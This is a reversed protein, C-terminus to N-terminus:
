GFFESPNRSSIDLLVTEGSQGVLRFQVIAVAGETKVLNVVGPGGASKPALGSTLNVRTPSSWSGPGSGSCTYRRVSTPGSGDSEARYTAVYTRDLQVWTLEVLTTLHDGDPANCTNVAPSLNFGGRGSQPPEFPPTSAVDHSLWTALGRTSRADDIRLETTPATRLIVIIASSLVTVVLGMLSIVILLEVLTFGKDTRRPRAGSTVARDNV